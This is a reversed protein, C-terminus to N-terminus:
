HADPAPVAKGPAEAHDDKLLQHTTEALNQMPRNPDTLLANVNAQQRLEAFAKPIEMQIKRDFVDKVLKARVSELSVTTDPPMRKDCRIVVCGDPTDVLPSMEGPQLRFAAKEVADNGVTRHGIPPVEGAHAALSATAQMTAKRQFEDDNDRISAYQSQAIKEEGKPWFIIRCAVKEGYYADYAAHIDEDTVKVRDHVLKGLLLKPRIVDEKWEYLTKKYQKLINNVFDAQTLGGMGKLDEALSAEIEAPTVEVGKDRCAEEIIIKNILLPLKEAGFRAILYEGLQERTVAENGHLFAVPRQGYDSSSSPQVPAAPQAPTPAPASKQAPAQAEARALFQSGTYGAGALGAVCATGLALRRWSWAAGKKNRGVM